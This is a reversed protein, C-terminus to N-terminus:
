NVPVTMIRHEGDPMEHDRLYAFEVGAMDLRDAEAQEVVYNRRNVLIAVGRGAADTWQIAKHATAFEIGEFEITM